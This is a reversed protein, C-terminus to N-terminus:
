ADGKELVIKVQVVDGVKAWDPAPITVTPVGGKLARQAEQMAEQFPLGQGREDANLIAQLIGRMRGAEQESSQLLSLRRYKEATDHGDWPKSYPPLGAFLDGQSDHYHWSVQGTPLDIYVCGHWEADWGDIATKAIGSPFLKALAAVVQNRERYADDKRQKYDVREQESAALQQEYYEILNARREQWKDKLRVNEQAYAKVAKAANEAHTTMVKNLTEIEQAQQALADALKMCSLCEGDHVQERTLAHPSSPYKLPNMIRDHAECAKAGCGHCQMEDECVCVVCGCPRIRDDSM